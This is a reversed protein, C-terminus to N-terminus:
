SLEFEAKTYASLAVKMWTDTRAVLQEFDDSQLVWRSYWDKTVNLLKVWKEAAVTTSLVTIALLKMKM